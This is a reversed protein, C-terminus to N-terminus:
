ILNWWGRIPWYSQRENKTTDENDEEDDEDDEEEDDSESDDDYLDPYEYITYEEGEGVYYELPMRLEPLYKVWRRGEDLIDHTTLPQDTLWHEAPIAIQQDKAFYWFTSASRRRTVKEIGDDHAVGEEDDMDSNVLHGVVHEFTTGPIRVDIEEVGNRIEIASM